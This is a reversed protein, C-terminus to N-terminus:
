KISLQRVDKVRGVTEDSLERELEVITCYSRRKLGVTSTNRGDASLNEALLEDM